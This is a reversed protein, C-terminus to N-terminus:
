TRRRTARSCAGRRRHGPGRQGPERDGARGLTILLLSQGDASFAVPDTTLADEAPIDKFLRWEDDASDRVLIKLSGDPEPAFTCRVALESDALWGLFGPNDVEKTLEGTQLNLRYVDHLKPNDKNLGILIESPFKRELAVIQTQVGEFPTLDRREM